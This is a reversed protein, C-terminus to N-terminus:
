FRMGAQEQFARQHLPRIVAGLGSVPLNNVIYSVMKAPM